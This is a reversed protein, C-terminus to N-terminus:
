ISFRREILKWERNYKKLLKDDEVPGNTGSKYFSLQKGKAVELLSDVFKWSEEIEDERAFLTQDGKFIEEFLTEYAQPTNAGFECKHCYEMSVPQIGNKSGPPKTNFVMVVGDQPDIRISIVNPIGEKPFLKNERERMVLNVEAYKKNLRKGTRIYFPTNKWRPTDIWTKFAVYTETKSDKEVGDEERYSKKWDGATYQGVNLDKSKVTCLKKLVKVKEDRISKSDFSKPSEMGVLSLVQLIHSQVMDKIAGATDYYEARTEVGVTESLNIQVHEIFDTNWVHEFLSNSFRFVVLNQVIEKGLYHDIRYIEKEKFIKSVTKTLVKSSEYDSGFPKEFVCKKNGSLLGSRDLMEVASGFLEPSISLYFMRNNKVNYKGEEKEVISNFEEFDDSNLDLATYTILKKFSSLKSKSIKEAESFDILDLYSDKSIARRGVCILPCSGLVGHDFLRFLAPLLKKRALDGTAGILIISHKEVEKKKM